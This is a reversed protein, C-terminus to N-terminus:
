PTVAANRVKRVFFYFEHSSAKAGGEYTFEVLAVHLENSRTEDLLVNDDPLLSIRVIGDSDVYGRGAPPASDLADVANVIITGTAEDYVTLTVSGLAALEIDNDNDDRLQGTITANKGELAYRVCDTRNKLMTQLGRTMSADIEAIYAVSLYGGSIYAEGWEVALSTLDDGEAGSGVPAGGIPDQGVTM